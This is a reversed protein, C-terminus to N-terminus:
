RIQGHPTGGCPDPVTAPVSPPTPVTVSSGLFPVDPVPRDDPVEVPLPPEVVAEAVSHSWPEDLGDATWAVPGRLGDLSRDALVETPESDTVLLLVAVLGTMSLTLIRLGKGSRLSQIQRGM